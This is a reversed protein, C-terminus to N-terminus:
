KSVRKQRRAAKRVRKEALELKRQKKEAQVVDKPRNKSGKPRGRRKKGSDPTTEGPTRTTNETPGDTPVATTRRAPVKFPDGFKSAMRVRTLPDAFGVQTHHKLNEDRCTAIKTVDDIAVVILIRTDLWPCGRLHSTHREAVIRDGVNFLPVVGLDPDHFTALALHDIAPKKSLRLMARASDDLIAEAMDVAEEPDLPAAFPQKPGDVSYTLTGVSSTLAPADDATEGEEAPPVYDIVAVADHDIPPLGFGTGFAGGMIPSDEQTRTSPVQTDTERYAPVPNKKGRPM